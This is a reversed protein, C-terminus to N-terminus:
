SSAFEAFLPLLCVEVPEEVVVAEEEDDEDGSDLADDVVSKSTVGPRAVHAALHDQQDEKESEASGNDNDNVSTVEISTPLSATNAASTAERKKAMAQLSAMGQERLKKVERMTATFEDM